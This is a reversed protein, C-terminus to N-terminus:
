KQLLQKLKTTLEGQPNAENLRQVTKNLEETNGKKYYAIALNYLTPEHKPDIELSKQFEEIARDLNPNAREVFTIGLDTRVGIDNPKEKLANTYLQEAKEFKGIDFYANGLRVVEEFKSPNLSNAKDYFETAKDFNKIKFYLEGAKLQAEFNNPETEAKDLTEKVDPMMGGKAPQEKVTINPVQQDQTPDMQANQIPGKQFNSNRNVSNAYFFGISLGIVLGVIGYLINKGM